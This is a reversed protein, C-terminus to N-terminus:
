GSKNYCKRMIFALFNFIKKTLISIKRAYENYYMKKLIFLSNVFNIKDVTKSSHLLRKIKTQIFNMSAMDKIKFKFM